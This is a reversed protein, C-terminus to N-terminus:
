KKKRQKKAREKRETGQSVRKTARKKKVAKEEEEEDSEEEEEEEEEEEDEEDTEGEEANSTTDDDSGKDLNGPGGVGPKVHYQEGYDVLFEEGPLVARTTKVELWHSPEAAEEFSAMEVFRCNAKKEEDLNRYDNIYYMPCCPHYDIHLEHKDCEPNIIKMAQHAKYQHQVLQGFYYGVTIKAGTYNATAFLGKTEGAVSGPFAKEKWAKLKESTKIECPPDLLAAAAEPNAPVGEQLWKRPLNNARNEDRLPALPHDDDVSAIIQAVALRGAREVPHLGILSLDLLGDPDRASATITRYFREKAHRLCVEDSDCGAFRRGLQVASLATSLTGGFFDMVMDGPLSFISIVENMLASGKEACKRVADGNEDVLRQTKPPPAVPWHTSRRHFDKMRASDHLEDLPRRKNVRKNGPVATFMKDGVKMVRNKKKPKKSGKKKLQMSIAGEVFSIGKGFFQSQPDAAAHAPSEWFKDFNASHPDVAMREFTFLHETVKNFSLPRPNKDNFTQTRTTVIPNGSNGERWCTPVTNTKEQYVGDAAPNTARNLRYGAMAANVCPWSRPAMMICLVSGEHSLRDITERLCEGDTKNIPAGGAVAYPLDIFIMDALAGGQGLYASAFTSHELWVAMFKKEQALYKTVRLVASGLAPLAPRGAALGDAGGLGGMEEEHAEDDDPEIEMEDNVAAGALAVLLPAEPDPFLLDAAQALSEAATLLNERITEAVGSPMSKDVCLDAATYLLIRRVIAFEGMLAKVFQLDARTPPCPAAPDVDQPPHSALLRKLTAVPTEIVRPPPPLAPPAAPAPAAAPASSALPASASPDAPPESQQEAPAPLPSSAEASQEQKEEEKDKAAQEQKEGEKNAAPEQKEEEKDKAAREQKEENNIRVELQEIGKEARQIVAKFRTWRHDASVVVAEAAAGLTRKNWAGLVEKSLPRKACNMSIAMLLVVVTLVSVQERGLIEKQQEKTLEAGAVRSRGARRTVPKRRRGAAQPNTLKLWRQHYDSKVNGYLSKRTWLKPPVDGTQWTSEQQDNLRSRGGPIPERDFAGLHSSLPLQEQLLEDLDASEFEGIKLLGLHTLNKLLSLSECMKTDPSGTPIGLKTCQGQLEHQSLHLYDSNYKHRNAAFVAMFASYLNKLEGVIGACM